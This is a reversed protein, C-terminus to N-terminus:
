STQRSAVQQPVWRGSMLSWLFVELPQLQLDLRQARAMVDKEDIADMSTAAALKDSGCLGHVVSIPTNSAVWRENPNFILRNLFSVRVEFPRRLALAQGLQRLFLHPESVPLAELRAQFEAPDMQGIEVSPMAPVPWSSNAFADAASPAPAPVAGPKVPVVPNVPLTAPLVRKVRAAAAQKLALRMDEIGYPKRLLVLSDGKNGSADLASWTQDFASAILVAPAGNLAQLLSAQAAESWRSLGKGALDIVYLDASPLAADASAPVVRCQWDPQLKGILMELALSERPTLATLAVNM